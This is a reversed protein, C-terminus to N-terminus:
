ALWKGCIGGSFKQLDAPDPVCLPFKLFHRGAPCIKGHRDKKRGARNPFVVVARSIALSILQSVRCFSAEKLAVPSGHM